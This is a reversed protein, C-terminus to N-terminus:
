KEKLVEGIKRSKVKEKDVVVKEMVRSKVEKVVTVQRTQIGKDGKSQTPLKRPQSRRARFQKFEEPKEGSKPNGTVGRYLAEYLGMKSLVRKRKKLLEKETYKNVDKLKQKPSNKSKKPPKSPLKLEPSPDPDAEEAAPEM